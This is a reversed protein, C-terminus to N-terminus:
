ITVSRKMRGRWVSNAWSDYSAIFSLACGLALSQCAILFYRSPTSRGVSPLRRHFVCPSSCFHVQSLGPSDSHTLLAQPGDLDQRRTVETEREIGWLVVALVPHGASALRVVNPYPHLLDTLGVSTLADIPRGSVEGAGGGGRALYGPRNSALSLMTNPVLKMEPTLPNGGRAPAGSNSGGLGGVGERRGAESGGRKCRVQM